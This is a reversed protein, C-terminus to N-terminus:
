GCLKALIVARRLNVVLYGPLTILTYIVHLSTEENIRVIRNFPVLSTLVEIELNAEEQAERRFGMAIEEGLELERGPCVRKGRWRGRREKRHKVLLARGKDDQIIAGIATLIRPL